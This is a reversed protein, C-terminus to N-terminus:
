QYWGLSNSAQVPESIRGNFPNNPTTDLGLSSDGLVGGGNIRNFIASFGSSRELATGDSLGINSEGDSPPLEIAKGKKFRKFLLVMFSM